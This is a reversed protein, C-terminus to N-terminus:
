KKRVEKKRNLAALQQAMQKQKAEKQSKKKGLKSMTIESEQITVYKDHKRSCRQRWRWRWSIPM